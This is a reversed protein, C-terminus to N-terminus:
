GRRCSCPMSMQQIDLVGCSFPLSCLSQSVYLCRARFTGRAFSFAQGVLPGGVLSQILLGGPPVAEQVAIVGRNTHCSQIATANLLSTECCYTRAMSFLWVSSIMTGTAKGYFAPIFDSM